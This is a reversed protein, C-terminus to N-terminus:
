LSLNHRINTIIHQMVFPVEIFNNIVFDHYFYNINHTTPILFPYESNFLSIERM